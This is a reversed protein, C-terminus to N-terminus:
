KYLSPHPDSAYGPTTCLPRREGLHDQPPAQWGGQIKYFYPIRGRQFLLPLPRSRCLKILVSLVRYITKQLIHPTKNNEM